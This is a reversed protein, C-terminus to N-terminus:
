NIDAVTGGGGEGPAHLIRGRHKRARAEERLDGQVFGAVIDIGDGDIDIGAAVRHGPRQEVGLRHSGEAVSEVLHGKGGGDLEVADLDNLDQESLITRDDDDAGNENWKREEDM